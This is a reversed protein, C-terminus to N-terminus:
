FKQCAGTQNINHRKVMVKAGLGAGPPKAEPPNPELGAGAGPVLRNPEVVGAAAGDM